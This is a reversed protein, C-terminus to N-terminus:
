YIKKEYYTQILCLRHTQLGPTTSSHLLRGGFSGAGTTVGYGCFAMGREGRGTRARAHANRRIIFQFFFHKCAILNSFELLNSCSKRHFLPFIRHLQPYYGILIPLVKFYGILIPRRLCYGILIPIIRKEPAPNNQETICSIAGLSM